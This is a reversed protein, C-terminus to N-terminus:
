SYLKEIRSGPYYHQLIERYTFGKDVMVAAGIQCFGVGHGWGAGYLIFGDSRKIPVFASSYLHSPSLAKRILLEKGITLTKKSGVIQLRVIRGSTGRELPILDEVEGVDEGIREKILAGLEEKTYSVEWRYFSTTEKDYDNLVQSLIKEDDTNCYAQPASQIWVEAQVHERLDPEPIDQPFADGDYKGQLYPYDIDEWCASFREMIGGCCKSFRADCIADEFVLVEGATDMVAGTVEKLSQSPRTIGQYRQCHDDACVDFLTHDERDWWKIWESDTKWESQPAAAPEAKTGLMERKEVQALLWSRSIVAHAKLYEAMATANMESAIVSILYEEVPLVNVARVMGDEPLLVLSGSFRQDEKREWHFDIGIVVEKLVFSAQPDSPKFVFRQSTEKIGEIRIAGDQVTATYEGTYPGFSGDLLFTVQPALLIGVEITKQGTTGM